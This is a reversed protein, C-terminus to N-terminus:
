DVIHGALELHSVLQRAANEEGNTAYIKDVLLLRLDSDSVLAYVEPEGRPSKRGLIKDALAPKLGPCCIVFM